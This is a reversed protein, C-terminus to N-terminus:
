AASPGGPNMQNGRISSRGYRKSERRALGGVRDFAAFKQAADSRQGCRQMEDQVAGVLVVLSELQSQVKAVERHNRGSAIAQLGPLVVFGHVALAILDFPEEASEFAEAADERAEIFEVDDKQTEEVESEDDLGETLTLM